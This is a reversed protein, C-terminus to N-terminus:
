SRGVHRSSLRARVWQVLYAAGIVIRDLVGARERPQRHPQSPEPDEIPEMGTIPAGATGPGGLAPAM